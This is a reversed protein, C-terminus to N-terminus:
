PTSITCKKDQGVVILSGDPVILAHGLGCPKTNLNECVFPGKDRRQVQLKCRGKGQGSCGISRSEESEISGQKETSSCAADSGSFVYFRLLASTDNQITFRSKAAAEGPAWLTLLALTAALAAMAKKHRSKRNQM